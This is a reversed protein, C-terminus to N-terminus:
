LLWTTTRRTSPPSAYGSTHLTANNAAGYELDILALVEKMGRSITDVDRYAESARTAESACVRHRHPRAQFQEARFAALMYTAPGRERAMTHMSETDIHDEVSVEM